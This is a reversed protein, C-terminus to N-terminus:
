FVFDPADLTGVGGTNVWLTGTGYGVGYWNSAAYTSDITLQAFTSFNCSPARTLRTGASFHAGHAGLNLGKNDALPAGRLCM